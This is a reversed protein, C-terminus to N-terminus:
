ASISQSIQQLWQHLERAFPRYLSAPNWALYYPQPLPLRHALPAVLRGSDLDAQLMASQALVVGHGALAADIAAGAQSFDLAPRPPKAPVKLSQAWADWGPIAGYDKEWEIGILPLALLQAPTLSSKGHLLGPACAALVSDTHLQLSHEHKLAQAGYTIRFDADGRSLDPEADTGMLRVRAEPHAARWDFLQLGLWKSAVSSLCSIVLGQEERASELVASARHLQAFVAKLERQYLQGWRSLAVGKGHREFLPLDLFEELKRVQQSVAGASIHLEEAARTVSGTRAVAEFVQIARLPPLKTQM